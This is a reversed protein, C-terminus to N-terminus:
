VPSHVRVMPSVGAPVRYGRLRLLNHRLSDYRPPSPLPPMVQVSQRERYMAIGSGEAAHDRHDLRRSTDCATPTRVVNEPGTRWVRRPLLM